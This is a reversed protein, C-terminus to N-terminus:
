YYDQYCIDRRPTHQVHIHALTVVNTLTTDQVSRIQEQCIILMLVSEKQVKKNYSDLVTVQQRM